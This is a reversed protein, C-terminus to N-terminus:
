RLEVTAAVSMAAPGPLDLASDVLLSGTPPICTAGGLAIERPAPDFGGLASRGREIRQAKRCGLTGRTL